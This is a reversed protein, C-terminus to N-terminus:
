INQRIWQVGDQMGGLLEGWFTPKIQQPQTKPPKAPPRQQPPAKPQPTKVHPAKAPKKAIPMTPHTTRYFLPALGFSCFHGTYARYGLEFLALAGAVTLAMMMKPHRRSFDQVKCICTRLTLRLKAAGTYDHHTIRSEIADEISLLAELAQIQKARDRSPSQQQLLSIQKYLMNKREFCEKLANIAAQAQKPSLSAHASQTETRDMSYMPIGILSTVLLLGMIKKTM